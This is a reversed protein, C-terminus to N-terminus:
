AGPLERQQAEAVEVEVAELLFTPASHRQGELFEM